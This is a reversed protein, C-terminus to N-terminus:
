FDKKGNIEDGTCYTKSFCTDGSDLGVKSRPFAYIGKIERVVKDTSKRALFKPM